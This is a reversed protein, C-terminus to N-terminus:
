MAFLFQKFQTRFCVKFDSAEGSEKMSRFTCPQSSAGVGASSLLRGFESAMKLNQSGSSRKSSVPSSDSMVDTEVYLIGRLRPVGQQTQGECICIPGM